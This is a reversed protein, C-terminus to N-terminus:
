RSQNTPNNREGLLWRRWSKPLKPGRGLGAGGAVQSAGVLLRFIALVVIVAVASLSAVFSSKNM